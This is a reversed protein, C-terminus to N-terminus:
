FETGIRDEYMQQLTKGQDAPNIDVDKARNKLSHGEPLMFYLLNHQEWEYAMDEPTRYSVMDKGHIKHEDSLAECIVIMDAKNTIKYSNVIRWNDTSHVATFTEKRYVFTYNTGDASSLKIDEKKLTTTVEQNQEEDAINDNNEDNVPTWVACYKADASVLVDKTSPYWSHFKYYERTPSSPVPTATGVLVNTYKKHVESCTVDKFYTITYKKDTEDAIGNKNVDTKPTYNAQYTKETTVTEELEPTWTNALTYYEREPVEPIYETINSGITVLGNFADKYANTENDWVQFVIKVQEEDAIGDENTDNKPIYNAQYTKSTTVKEDLEPTWTQNWTYNEREPVEPIYNATLEGIKVNEKFADIYTKTENDWVQFTIEVKGEEVVPPPTPTPKKPKDEKLVFILVVAIIVVLVIPIIIFLIKKKNGKPNELTPEVPVTPPETQNEEPTNVVSTEAPTEYMPESQTMSQNEYTPEISNTTQNEMQNNIQEPQNEM